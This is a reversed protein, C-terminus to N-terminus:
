REWRLGRRDNYIMFVWWTGFLWIQVTYWWRYTNINIHPLYWAPTEIMEGGRGKLRCRDRDPTWGRCNGPLHHMNWPPYGTIRALRVWLSPTSFTLCIIFLFLSTHIVAPFSSFTPLSLSFGTSKLREISSYTHYRYKSWSATWILVLAMTCM